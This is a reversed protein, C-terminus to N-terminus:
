YIKIEKLWLAVTNSMICLVNTMVSDSIWRLGKCTPSGFAFISNFFGSCKHYYMYESAVRVLHSGLLVAATKKYM